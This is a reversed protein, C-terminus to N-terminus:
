HLLLLLQLLLLLELAAAPYGCRQGATNIYEGAALLALMCANSYPLLLQQQLLLVQPLICTYTCWGCLLLLLLLLV